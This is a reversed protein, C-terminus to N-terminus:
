ASAGTIAVAVLSTFAPEVSGRAGNEDRERGAYIERAVLPCREPVRATRARRAVREGRARRRDQACSRCRTNRTSTRWHGRQAPRM